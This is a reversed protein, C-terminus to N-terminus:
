EKAKGEGDSISEELRDMTIIYRLADYGEDGLWREVVISEDDGYELELADCLLRLVRTRCDIM